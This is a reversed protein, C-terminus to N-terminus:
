LQMGLRFIACICYNNNLLKQPNWMVRLYHSFLEWRFFRTIRYGLAAHVPLKATKMFLWAFPSNNIITTICHMALHM